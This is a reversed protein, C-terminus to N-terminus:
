RDGLFLKGNFSIGALLFRARLEITPAAKPPLKKGTM